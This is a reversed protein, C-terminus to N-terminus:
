IQLKLHHDSIFGFQPLGTLPLFLLYASTLPVYASGHLSILRHQWIIGACPLPLLHKSAQSHM